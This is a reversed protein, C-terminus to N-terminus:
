RLRAEITLTKETIANQVSSAHNVKALAFKKVRDELVAVFVERNMNIASM